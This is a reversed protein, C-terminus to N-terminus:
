TIGLASLRDLIATTVTAPAGAADVTALIGQVRFHELLPATEVHYEELRRDVAAVDADDRRGERARGALRQRAVEDPVALVVVADFPPSDPHLAQAVTRPYGDLIYGDGRGDAAIAERVLGLVVDDAVLEGRDIEAAVDSWSGAAVRARLLEGSSIVPVGFRDALAAGQTGKGSGPPGMLVLRM